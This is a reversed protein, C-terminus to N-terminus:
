FRAAKQLQRVPVIAEIKIIWFCGWYTPTGMKEASIKIMFRVWFDGIRGKVSFVM